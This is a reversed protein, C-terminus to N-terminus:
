PSSAPLQGFPNIFTVEKMGHWLETATSSQYRVLSTQHVSKLGESRENWIQLKLAITILVFTDTLSTLFSFMPAKDPVSNLHSSIKTFFHLPFHLGNNFLLPTSYIRHPCANLSPIFFYIGHTHSWFFSYLSIYKTRYVEIQKVINLSVSHVPFRARPFSLYIKVFIIAISHSPSNINKSQM